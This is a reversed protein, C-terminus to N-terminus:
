SQFILFFTLDSKKLINLNELGTGPTFNTNSMKRESEKRCDEDPVFFSPTGQNRLIAGKQSLHYREITLRNFSLSIM